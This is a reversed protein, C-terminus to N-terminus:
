GGFGFNVVKKGGIERVLDPARREIDQAMPGVRKPGMPQGTKRAREVDSKYDYAYIPLGTVGDMGVPDINTKEREDSIIGATGLGGIISGIGGLAQGFSNGTTPQKTTSSTPVQTGSLAALYLNLQDTPVQRMANYQNQAQDLYSQAQSQNIQGAALASNLSQLYAAQQGAALSGQQGAAQLNLGQANYANTQDQQWRGAADNYGQSRLQASLDGMQRANEAAAVGEAIGHRSGGFANAGLAQDGITNVNQKYARNMNDLAANEVNQIYPNMYASMDGQLFSDPKWNAVGAATQGAQGYAANTSGINAGTASIAQSQMPDLGAVTNGMYPQAINQAAQDALNLAKKAPTTYWAPLETKQTTTQSGQTKGM